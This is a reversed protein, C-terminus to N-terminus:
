EEEGGGALDAVRDAMAAVSPAPRLPLGIRDTRSASLPNKRAVPLRMMWASDLQLTHLSGLLDMVTQARTIVEGPEQGACCARRIRCDLQPRVPVRPLCICLCLLRSVLCLGPDRLGLGLRGTWGDTTVGKRRRHRAAPHRPASIVSWPLCALMAMDGEGGGSRGLELPAPGSLGLGM